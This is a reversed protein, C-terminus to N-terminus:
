EPQAPGVGCAVAKAAIQDAKADLTRARERVEAACAALAEAETAHTTQFPMLANAGNGGIGRVVRHEAVLVITKYVVHDGRETTFAVWVEQGDTM